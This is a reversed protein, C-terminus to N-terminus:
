DMRPLYSTGARAAEDEDHMDSASICHRLKSAGNHATAQLRGPGSPTHSRAGSEGAIILRPPAKRGPARPMRFGRAPPKPTPMPVTNLAARLQAHWPDKEADECPLFTDASKPSSSTPPGAPSGSAGLADTFSLEEDNRRTDSSTALTTAVWRFIATVAVVGLTGVAQLSIPFM